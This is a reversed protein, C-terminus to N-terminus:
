NQYGRYGTKEIKIQYSFISALDLVLWELDFRGSPYRVAEFHTQWSADDLSRDGTDGTLHAM